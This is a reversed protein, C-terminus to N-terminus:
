KEGSHRIRAHGILLLEFLDVLDEEIVFRTSYRRHPQTDGLPDDDGTKDIDDDGIRLADHCSYRIDDTRDDERRCM